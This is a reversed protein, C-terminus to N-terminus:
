NQELNFLGCQVAEQLEIQALTPGMIVTRIGKFRSQIFDKMHCLGMTRNLWKKTYLHATVRFVCFAGQCPGKGLRSRLGLSVLSFPQGEDTMSQSLEDIIRTSIMECECLLVEHSDTKQFWHKPSAGPTTWRCEPAHELPIDRTRCPQSIGLHVCVLDSTKEAMLRCTTLKGGTITMFNGVGDLSHDILSFGRSLVRDGNEGSKGVLPRVGAYARIYRETRLKPILKSGEDIIMDTEPVTPCVDDPNSIRLSTTGLISVTGGPVIIDADGPPRLRNVVRHAIRQGTVLLTGKSYTMPINVGAKHGVQAAWAGAANVVMDTEINFMEGTLNNELSASVINGNVLGFSLIRSHYFVLAGAHTANKINQQSLGFPDISADNVRYAAIIDGSLYPELERAHDLSIKEALIKAKSCYHPFDAIFNEDDGKVAVFLGGTNEICQPLTQKLIESEIRCELAAEPDSVAYRAGSHLLGHNAGSAGANMDKSEVLVCHIGRLTLDRLVSTGTVGGGVILVQTKFKKRM